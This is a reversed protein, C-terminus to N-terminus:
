IYNAATLMICYLFCFKWSLEDRGVQCLGQWVDLRVMIQREMKIKSSWCPDSQVDSSEFQDQLM